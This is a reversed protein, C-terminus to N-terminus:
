PRPTVDVPLTGAVWRLHVHDTHAPWYGRNRTHLFRRGPRRDGAQVDFSDLILPDNHVFYAVADIEVVIRALLRLHEASATESDPDDPDLRPERAGKGKEAATWLSAGRKFHHWWIRPRGDSDPESEDLLYLDADVGKQHTWHDEIKGGTVHSLDGIGIRAGGLQTYAWAISVLSEVVELKAWQRHVSEHGNTKFPLYERDPDLRDSLNIWREGEIWAEHRAPAASSGPEVASAPDPAIGATPVVIHFYAQRADVTVVLDYRALPGAEAEAGPEPDGFKAIAMWNRVQETRGPLGIARHEAYAERLGSGEPMPGKPTSRPDIKIERDVLVAAAAALLAEIEEPTPPPPPPPPEPPAQVESDVRKAGEQVEHLYATLPALLPPLVGADETTAGAEAEAEIESPASEHACGSLAAWATLSLSLWAGASLRRLGHCSSRDRSSRDRSRGCRRQSAASDSPRPQPTTNV